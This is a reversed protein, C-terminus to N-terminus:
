DLPFHDALRRRLLLVTLTGALAVLVATGLMAFWIPSPSLASIGVQGGLQEGIRQVPRQVAAGVPSLMNDRVYVWVAGRAGLVAGLAGLGVFMLVLPNEERTGSM